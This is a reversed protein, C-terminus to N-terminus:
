IESLLEDMLNNIAIELREPTEYVGAAIEARVREVVNVRVDPINQIMESMRAAQSIEVVDSIGAPQVPNTSPPVVAGAPEVPKAAAPGQIGHINEIM